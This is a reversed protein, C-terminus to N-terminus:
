GRENRLMAVWTGLDEPHVNEVLEFGLRRQLAVSRENGVKAGGVLRPLKLEGFAYEVMRRCAETAYGKGWYRRGFAFALEVEIRCLGDVVDGPIVRFNNVYPDLHVVGVVEATERLVVVMRGFEAGAPQACHRRFAREVLEPKDAIGSYNGWM